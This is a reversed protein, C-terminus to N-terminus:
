NKPSNVFIQALYRANFNIYLLQLPRCAFILVVLLLVYIIIYVLLYYLILYFHM